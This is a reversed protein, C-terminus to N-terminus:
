GPSRKSLVYAAIGAGMAQEAMDSAVNEHWGFIKNGASEMLGCVAALTAAMLFATALPSRNNAM